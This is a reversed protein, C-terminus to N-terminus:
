PKSRPPLLLGLSRTLILARREMESSSPCASATSAAPGGQDGGDHAVQEGAGEVAPAAGSQTKAKSNGAAGSPSSPRAHIPPMPVSLPGACPPPDSHSPPPPPNGIDPAAEAAARDLEQGEATSGPSVQPPLPESRTATDAGDGNAGQEGQGPMDGHRGGACAQQACGPADVVTVVSDAAEVVQRARDQCDPSTAAGAAVESSSAEVEDGAAGEALLGEANGGDRAAAGSCTSAEAASTTSDTDARIKSWV